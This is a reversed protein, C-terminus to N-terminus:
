TIVLTLLFCVSYWLELLNIPQPGHGQPTLGMSLSLVHAITGLFFFFNPYPDDLGIKIDESKLAWYNLSLFQGHATLNM